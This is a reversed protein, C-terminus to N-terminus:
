AGDQTKKDYFNEVDGFDGHNEDLFELTLEWPTLFGAPGMTALEEIVIQLKAKAHPEGLDALAEIIKILLRKYIDDSRQYSSLFNAGILGGKNMEEELEKFEAVTKESVLGKKKLLDLSGDRVTRYDRKLGRRAM